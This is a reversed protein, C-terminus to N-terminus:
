GEDDFITFFGMSEPPDVAADVAAFACLGVLFDKGGAHHVTDDPGEEGLPIEEVGLDDGGDFGGVM